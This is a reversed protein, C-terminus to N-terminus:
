KSTSIPKADAADMAASDAVIAAATSIGAHDAIAVIPDSDEEMGTEALRAMEENARAHKM